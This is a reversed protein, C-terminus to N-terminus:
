QNLSSIGRLAPEKIIKITRKDLQIIGDKSLASLVRIANSTTMNSLAGFEARKLKAKLTQGDSEVGYIDYLILLAEAIRGRMHKQTLNVIREDYDILDNAFSKLLKLAMSSNRQIVELFNNKEIICVSSDEIAVASNAYEKEAILAKYGIFDVPKRLGTIQEVGEIGIKTIKVMGHKLCILGTPKSGEKFIVEGAKFHHMRRDSDLIELDEKHLDGFLSKTKHKCTACSSNGAGVSTDCILNSHM